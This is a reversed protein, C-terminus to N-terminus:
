ESRPKELGRFFDAYDEANQFNRFVSAFRAAALTDIRLLEEMVREGIFDTGVEKDGREQTSREVRDILRQLDDESVPRKECAKRVSLAIKERWFEERRADRKVVKPMVM